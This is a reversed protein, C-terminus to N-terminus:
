NGPAELIRGLKRKAQRLALRDLGPLQRRLADHEPSLFYNRLDDPAYPALHSLAARLYRLTPGDKQAASASAGSVTEYLALLAGILIWDRSERRGRSYGFQGYLEKWGAWDAESAPPITPPALVRDQLSEILDAFARHAKDFADVDAKTLPKRRVRRLAQAWEAALWEELAAVDDPSLPKSCNAAVLIAEITGPPLSAPPQKSEPM